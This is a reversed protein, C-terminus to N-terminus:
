RIGFVEKWTSEFDFDGILHNLEELRVVRQSLAAKGGLFVLKVDVQELPLQYTHAVARRYIEMQVAYNAAHAPRQPTPPAGTKWDVVTLRGDIEMLADVQLNINVGEISVALPAEVAVVADPKEGFIQKAIDAFHEVQRQLHPPVAEPDVGTDASACASDDATLCQQDDHFQAAQGLWQEAWRHFATGVTLAQNPEEPLPRRIRAAFEQPNELYRAAATASLRELVIVDEHRESAKRALLIQRAVQEFNRGWEDSVSLGLQALEARVQEVDTLPQSKEQLAREVRNAVGELLSRVMGAAPPYVSSRAEWQPPTDGSEEVFVLPGPVGPGWVVADNLLRVAETEQLCTNLVDLAVRPFVSNNKWWKGTLLLEKSPRTFAVYNVCLEEIREHAKAGQGCAKMAQNLAKVEAKLTSHGEAIDQLSPAIEPPQPLLWQTQGTRPHKMKRDQRLWTPVVSIDLWPQYELHAIPAQGEAFTSSEKKTNAEDLGIVVVRDWELGKSKHISMLEVADRNPTHAQVPTKDDQEEAVDVWQLFSELTTQGEREFARAMELFQDLASLSQDEVPNSIADLDLNFIRIAQTVIVLLPQDLQERVQRLKDAVLRAARLGDATLAIPKGDAEIQVLQDLADVLSGRDRPDDCRQKALTRAYESLAQLDQATAGWTTLLRITAPGDSYRVAAKLIARLEVVAPNQLLGGLGHIVYDIGAEILADRIPLLASNTRALVAYREKTPSTDASKWNAIMKAVIRAQDQETLPFAIRVKGDADPDDPQNIQGEPATLPAVDVGLQQSRERLKRSVANAAIRVNTRNRRAQTLSCHLLPTEECFKGEFLALSAASAGRFGYISQNPDGVATVALDKFLASLLDLQITSTDQFEDLLVARYRARIQAAVQPHETIIRYAYSLQDNFGMLHHARKYEQFQKVLPLILLQKTLAERWKSLKSTVALKGLQELESLKTEIEATFAGVTLRHDSLQSELHIVTKVITSVAYDPLAGAYSHVMAEVVQFARADSIVTTDPEIGITLGYERVIAAAFSNYTSVEVGSSFWSDNVREKAPRQDESAKVQDGVSGAGTEQSDAAEPSSVDPVGSAVQYQEPDVIRAQVLDGLMMRIRSALEAVAKNSFTLGLIQQPAIGHHYVLHLVRMAMVWTKGAGAGAVVLTPSLPGAIAPLQESTPIIPAPAKEGRQKARATQWQNLKEIMELAARESATQNKDESM